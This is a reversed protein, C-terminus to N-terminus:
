DLVAPQCIKDECYVSANQMVNDDNSCTAQKSIRITLLQLSVCLMLEHRWPWAGVDCKHETVMASIGRRYWWSKAPTPIIRMLDVADDAMRSVADPESSM